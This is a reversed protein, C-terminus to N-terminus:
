TIRVQKSTCWGKNHVAGRSLSVYIHTHSYMHLSGSGVGWRGGEQLFPHSEGLTVNYDVSYEVAKGEFVPLSFLRPREYGNMAPELCKNPIVATSYVILLSLYPKKGGLSTIQM